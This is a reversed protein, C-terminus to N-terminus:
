IWYKYGTLIWSSHLSKRLVFVAHCCICSHKGKFNKTANQIIDHDTRCDTLEWTSVVTYRLTVHLVFSLTTLRSYTQLTLKSHKTGATYNQEFRKEPLTASINLFLVSSPCEWIQTNVSNPKQKLLLCNDASQDVPSFAIMMHLITFTPFTLRKASINSMSM